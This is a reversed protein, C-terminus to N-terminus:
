TSTAHIQAQYAAVVGSSQEKGLHLLISKVSLIIEDGFDSTLHKPASWTDSCVSCLIVTTEPGSWAWSDHRCPRVDSEGLDGQFFVFAFKLFARQSEIWSSNDKGQCCHLHCVLRINVLSTFHQVLCSLSDVTMGKQVYLSLFCWWPILIDGGDQSFHAQVLSGAGEKLHAGWRSAGAKTLPATVWAMPGARGKERWSELGDAVPSGGQHGQVSRSEM